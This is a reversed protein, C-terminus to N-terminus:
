VNAFEVNYTGQLIVETNRQLMIYGKQHLIEEIVACSPVAVACSPMM